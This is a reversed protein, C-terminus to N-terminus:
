IILVYNLTNLQITSKAQIKINSNKKNKQIESVIGVPYGPPFRGGLGSSILIDGLKINNPIVHKLELNKRIGKGFLIGHINNRLTKVPIAHTSDHVLLVTSTHQNVSIIQGVIGQINIVTQGLIINEKKGKNLIVQCKNTYTINALIKAFIKTTNKQIPIKLLQYLQDNEKKYYKSMLKTYNNQMSLHKYIHHKKQNTQYCQLICHIDHYIQIPINSLFYIPLIVNETKKKINNFNESTKDLLILICSLIIAFLLRKNHSKKKFLKKM